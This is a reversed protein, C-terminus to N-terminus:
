RPGKWSGWFKLQDTARTPILLVVRHGCIDRSTSLPTCLPWPLAPQPPAPPAQPLPRTPSGRKHHSLNWVARKCGAAAPLHMMACDAHLGACLSPLPPGRGGSARVGTWNDVALTVEKAESACCKPTGWAHKCVPTGM